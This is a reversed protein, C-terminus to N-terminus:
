LTRKMTVTSLLLMVVTFVALFGVHASAAALDGGRFLVAKLAAVAHMEPNVRAFARLWPPFSQIPYLAGSPFFFIINLFGNVLGVIRPHAARSLLAMTMALLGLGTLLIVVVILAYAFPGGHVRAGTALVGIAFVLGSSLFMTTTGSLLVGLNLDVRRLPTSLYAEHVGLFRDMVMNFAGAIMTAMFIS